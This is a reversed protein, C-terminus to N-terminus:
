VICVCMRKFLNLLISPSICFASIIKQNQNIKVSAHPSDVQAM